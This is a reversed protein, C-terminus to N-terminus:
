GAAATDRRLRAPNPCSSARAATGSPPRRAALRHQVDRQGFGLLLEPGDGFRVAPPEVADVIRSSAGAPPASSGSSCFVINWGDSISSAAVVCASGRRRRDAALRRAHHEVRQRLQPQQGAVRQAIAALNQRQLLEERRALARHQQEVVHRRGVVVQLHLADRVADDQELLQIGLVAGLAPPQADDLVAAHLEAAAIVVVDIWGRRGRPTEAARRRRAGAAAGRAFSGLPM